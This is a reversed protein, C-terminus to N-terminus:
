DETEDDLPRLLQASFIWAREQKGARINVETIDGLGQEKLSRMVTQPDYNYERSLGDCLDEFQEKKVAIFWDILLPNTPPRGAKKGAAQARLKAPPILYGRIASQNHPKVTSPMLGLETIGIGDPMVHRTEIIGDPSEGIPLVIGPIGYTSEAHVDAPNNSPPGPFAVRNSAVARRVDRAWQTALPVSANSQKRACERLASIARSIKASLDVTYEEAFRGLLLNGAVIAAYRSATRSPVGWSNTEAMAEQYCKELEGAPELNRYLWTVFVSYARHMLERSGATSLEESINRAFVRGSGWKDSLHPLVILRDLSSDGVIPIESPIKISSHLAPSEAANVQNREKDVRALAAGGGDFSRALNSIMDSQRRIEMESAGKKLADDCTISYGAYNKVAYKPGKVTGTTDGLNLVPKIAQLSERTKPTDRAQIADWRVCYLTKGSGHEGTLHLGSWLEPRIATLSGTMLQGIFAPPIATYDSVCEDYALSFLELGERTQDDTIENPPTLDYYSGKDPIHDLDAQIDRTDGHADFVRSRTVFVLSRDLLRDPEPSGDDLYVPGQAQILLNRPLLNGQVRLFEGLRYLEGTLTAGLKDPWRSQRDLRNRLDMSAILARFSEGSNTESEARVYEHWEPAKVRRSPTVEFALVRDIVRIDGEWIVKPVHRVDGTEKDIKRELCIVVKYNPDPNGDSDKRLARTYKNSITANEILEGVFEYLTPRGVPRASKTRASKTRAPQTQTPEDAAQGHATTWV